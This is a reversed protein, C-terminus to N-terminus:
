IWCAPRPRTRLSPSSSPGMLDLASDRFQPPAKTQRGKKVNRSGTGSKLSRQDTKLKAQPKKRVPSVSELDVRGKKSKRLTATRAVEAVQVKRPQVEQVFKITSDIESDEDMELGVGSDERGHSAKFNRRPQPEQEGESSVSGVRGLDLDSGWDRIEGVEEAIEIKDVYEEVLGAMDVLTEAEEQMIAVLESLDRLVMDEAEAIHKQDM